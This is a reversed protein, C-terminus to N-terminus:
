IGDCNATIAASGNLVQTTINNWQTMLRCHQVSQIHQHSGSYHPWDDSNVIDVQGINRAFFQNYIGSSQTTPRNKINFLHHLLLLSLQKYEIDDLDRYEESIDHMEQSGFYDKEILINALSVVNKKFKITM